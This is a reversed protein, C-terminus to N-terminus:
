KAQNDLVQQIKTDDSDLQTAMRVQWSHDEKQNSEVHDLRWDTMNNHAIQVEGQKEIQASIAGLYACTAWGGGAAFLIAAFLTKPDNLLRDISM